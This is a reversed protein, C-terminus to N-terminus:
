TAKKAEVTKQSMTKRPRKKLLSESSSSTKRDKERTKKKATRPLKRKM